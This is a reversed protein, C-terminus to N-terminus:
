PALPLQACCASPIRISGGCDNGAAMPVVGSVGEEFSCNSVM